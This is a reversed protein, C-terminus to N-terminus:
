HGLEAELRNLEAELHKPTISESGRFQARSEDVHVSVASAERPLASAASRSPEARNSQVVQRPEASSREVSAQAAPESSKSSDAAAICGSLAGLLLAGAPVMSWRSGVGQEIMSEAM